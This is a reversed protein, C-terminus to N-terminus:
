RFHTKDSWSLTRGAFAALAQRRKTIPELIAAIAATRQVPDSDIRSLVALANRARTIANIVSTNFVIASRRTCPCYITVSHVSLLRYM